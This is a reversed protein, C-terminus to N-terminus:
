SGLNQDLWERGASTKFWKEREMAKARRVHDEQYVLKWDDGFQQYTVAGSRHEKLRKQLDDTFGVFRKGSDNQLVYVTYM